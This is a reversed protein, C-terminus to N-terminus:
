SRSPGTHTPVGQRTHSLTHYEGEYAASRQTVDKDSFLKESTKPNTAPKPTQVLAYAAGATKPEAVKVKKSSKNVQAYVDTGANNTAADSLGAAVITSKNPSSSRDVVTYENNGETTHAPSSISSINTNASSAPGKQERPKDVVAYEDKQPVHKNGNSGFGIDENGGSRSAASSPVFRAEGDVTTYMDAELSPPAAPHGNHTNPSGRVTTASPKHDTIDTDDLDESTVYM